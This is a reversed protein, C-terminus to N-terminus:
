NSFAKETIQNSHRKLLFAVLFHHIDYFPESLNRVSLRLSYNKSYERKTNLSINAEFTPGNQDIYNNVEVSPIPRVKTM